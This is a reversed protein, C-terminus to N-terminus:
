YWEVVYLQIEVLAAVLSYVYILLILIFEVLETMICKPGPYHRGEFMGFVVDVNHLGDIFEVLPLLLLKHMYEGDDFM